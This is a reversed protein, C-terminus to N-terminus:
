KFLSLDPIPFFNGSLAIWAVLLTLVLNFSQGVVYLTMPKGGEMQAAMEKFNSELGISMFALCFCWGKWTKCADIVSVTVDNGLTPLLILSSILSAVIFGLIFKPFRHWIEGAGVARDSGVDVKTTFFIAIAFAIFGILVNQIMKVMAAVQGGVDGLAQGALVVAGTSDVTGGIWAGGVMPDMGVAKIFLPMGVMMLVTFIMSLGIAFTLEVKRARCAAAAAIAASVGCVSTAVSIVMVMRPNEMKLYKTGFLWMFIIVVPTVFWAIALGYGGFKAINSFLVEAGMLVLGTKIYYETQVAPRIFQPTKVTNAILLGIVLAWVAYEFYQKLTAQGSIIYVVSALIYVFPFAAAFKAVPKKMFYMGISFVIDFFILTFLWKIFFAGSFLGMFSPMAENGWTGFKVAKFTLPGEKPFLGTTVSLVALLIIFFGIWITWWDEVRWLDSLQSKSAVVIDQDAPRGKAQKNNDKSM